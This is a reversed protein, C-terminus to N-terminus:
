TVVRRDARSPRMAAHCHPSMRSGAPDPRGAQFDSVAERIPDATNMVFSGYQVIPEGLLRGAIPLARAVPDGCPHAM